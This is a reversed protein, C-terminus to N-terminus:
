VPDPWDLDMLVRTRITIPVVALMLDKSYRYPEGVRVVKLPITTLQHGIPDSLFQEHLQNIIQYIIPYGGLAVRTLLLADQADIDSARRLIVRITWEVALVTGYRGSGTNLTDDLPLAAPKIWACPPSPSTWPQDELSIAVSRASFLGTSVMLDRLAITALTLRDLRPPPTPPIPPPLIEAAASIQVPPAIVRGGRVPVHRRAVVVRAPRTPGIVVPPVVHLVGIVAQGRRPPVAAQRAVLVVPRTIIPASPPIVRTQVVWTQGRRPLGVRRRAIEPLPPTRAPLETIAAHLGSVTYATGIRPQVQLRRAVLSLQPAAPPAPAPVTAGINSATWASGPRGPAPSPRALSPASPTIPVPAPASALAASLGMSVSGGRGPGLSRQAVHIIPLQTPPVSLAAGTAPSVWALGPRPPAQRPRSLLPPVPTSLVVPLPAARLGTISVSGGTPIKPTQRSVVPSVIPAFQVEVRVGYLVQARGGRAPGHPPRALTPQPPAIRVSPALPAARLGSISVSGGPPPTTARQAVVPSQPAPLPVATLAMAALSVVITHGPRPASPRARAVIVNTNM